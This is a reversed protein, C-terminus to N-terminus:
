SHQVTGLAGFSPIPCGTAWPYFVGDVWIYVEAQADWRGGHSMEVVTGFGCFHQGLETPADGCFGSLDTDQCAFGGMPSVFADSITFSAEGTAPDPTIHGGPFSVVQYGAYQLPYTEPHAWTSPGLGVLAAIAVAAVLFKTQM